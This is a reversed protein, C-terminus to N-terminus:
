NNSDNSNFELAIKYDSAMVAKGQKGEANLWYSRQYRDIKVWGLIEVFLLDYWMDGRNAILYAWDLLAFYLNNFFGKEAADKLKTVVVLDSSRIIHSEECGCGIFLDDSWIDADQELQVDKKCIACQIGIKM